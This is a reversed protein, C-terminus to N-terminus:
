FFFDNSLLLFFLKQIVTDTKLRSPCPEAQMHTSKVHVHRCFAPNRYKIHQHSTRFYSGQRITFDWEISHLKKNGQIVAHKEGGLSTLTPFLPNPHVHYRAICENIKKKGGTFGGVCCGGPYRCLQWKCRLTRRVGLPGVLLIVVHPDM